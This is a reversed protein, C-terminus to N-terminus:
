ARSLVARNYGIPRGGRGEIRFVRRVIATKKWRAQKTWDFRQRNLRLHIRKYLYRIKYVYVQKNCFCINELSGALIFITKNCSYFAVGDTEM